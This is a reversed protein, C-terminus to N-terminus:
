RPVPRGAYGVLPSTFRVEQPRRDGLAAEVAGQRDLWRCSGPFGAVDSFCAPNLAVRGVYQPADARALIEPAPVPLQVAGALVAAGRLPADPPLFVGASTPLAALVLHTFAGARPAGSAGFSLPAPQGEPGTGLVDPLLLAQGDFRIFRYLPVEVIRGDDRWSFGGSGFNLSSRHSGRVWLGTTRPSAVPDGSLPRVPATGAPAALGAVGPPVVALLPNAEVHPLAPDVLTRADRYADPSASPPIVVDILQWFPSYFFSPPVVDIVPEATQIRTAPPGTPPEQFLVYWPQRWAEPVRYWVEAVVYASPQGDLWAPVVVLGDTGAPQLSATSTHPPSLWPIPAGGPAVLTSADIGAVTGGARAASALDEASWIRARDSEPVSDCAALLLAVLAARRL